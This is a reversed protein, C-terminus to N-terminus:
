LILLGLDLWKELQMKVRVCATEPEDGALKSLEQEQQVCEASHHELIIQGNEVTITHTESACLIDIESVRQDSVIRVVEAMEGFARFKM